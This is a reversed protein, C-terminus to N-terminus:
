ILKYYLSKRIFNTIEWFKGEYILNICQCFHLYVSLQFKIKGLMWRAEESKSSLHCKSVPVPLGISSNNYINISEDPITEKGSVVNVQHSKEGTTSLSLINVSFDFAM